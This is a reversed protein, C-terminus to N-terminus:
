PLIWLPSKWARLADLFVHLRSPLFNRTPYVAHVELRRSAWDQLLRVLESKEIKDNCYTSPLLGIGHGRYVFTSVSQFDRSSIPGAVRIEVRTPGKLLEWEAEKKTGKFVVGQHLRPDKPKTPLKRDKLYEPSAVVYRVQSGIKKAILTSDGLEGFRIAVDVNEAILDLFENTIFLDITISPYVKLFDSIFGLFPDQGLVVPVSIKLSGEPKSQSQTLVREADFLLNLPESCQHFYDQGQSTLALKRTTRQLLTVGLESELTSVKRSVTSVPMGLAHAARSFSGLQAVKVFVAIDNLYAM